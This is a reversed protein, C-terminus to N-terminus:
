QPLPLLSGFSSLPLDVRKYGAPPEFRSDAVTRLQVRTVQEHFTVKGSADYVTAALPLEGNKLKDTWSPPLMSPPLIADFDLRVDPALCADIRRGTKDDRAEWTNCRHGAITKQTGTRVATWRSAEEALRREADQRSEPPVQNMDLVAYASQAPMVLVVRQRAMDVVAQLPQHEASASAPLDCRLRSGKIEVDVKQPGHSRDTTVSMAISGEHMPAVTSGTAARAQPAVALAASIALCLAM